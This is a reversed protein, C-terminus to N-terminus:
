RSREGRAGKPTTTENNRTQQNVTITKAIMDIAERWRLAKVEGIRLGAEGALCVGAYWEPGEAKAAALIRAYQGFLNWWALANRTSSASSTSAAWDVIEISAAPTSCTAAASPWFPGRTM